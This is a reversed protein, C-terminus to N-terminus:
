FSCGRRVTRIQCLNSPTSIWPALAYRSSSNRLSPVFLRVSSYPPEMSFRARKWMSTLVAQAFRLGGEGESERERENKGGRERHTKPPTHTETHLPPPPGAKVPRSVCLNQHLPNPLMAPGTYGERARQRKQERQTLPALRLLVYGTSKHTHATIRGASCTSRAKGFSTPQSRM